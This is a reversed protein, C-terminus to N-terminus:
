KSQPTNSVNKFFARVEPFTSALGLSMASQGLKDKRNLDTGAKILIDIAKLQPTQPQDDGPVLLIMLATRGRIDVANVNVGRKILLQLTKVFNKYSFDLSFNWWHLITWGANDQFNIDAGRDLLLNIQDLNGNRTADVLKDWNEDAFSSLAINLFLVAMGLILVLSKNKPKIM